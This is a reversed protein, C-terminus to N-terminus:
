FSEIWFLIRLSLDFEIEPPPPPGKKGKTTTLGFRALRFPGDYSLVLSGDVSDPDLSAEQVSQIEYTLDGDIWGEKRGVLFDIATSGGNQRLHAVRIRPNRNGDVVCTNPAVATANGNGVLETCAAASVITLEYRRRLAGAVAEDCRSGDIPRNLGIFALGGGSSITEVCFSDDTPDIPYDLLRYDTYPGFGDSAVDWGNEIELRVAQDPPAAHLSPLAMVGAVACAIGAILRLTLPCRGKANM